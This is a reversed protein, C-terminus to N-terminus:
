CGTGPGRSGKHLTFCNNTGAQHFTDTGESTSRCLLCAEVRTKRSSFPTHHIRATCLTVPAARSLSKLPTSADTQAHDVCLIGQLHSAALGPSKALPLFPVRPWPLLTCIEFLCTVGAPLFPLTLGEKVERKDLIKLGKRERNVEQMGPYGQHLNKKVRVGPGVAEGEQTAATVASM